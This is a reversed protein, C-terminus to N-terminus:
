EGPCTEINNPTTGLHKMCVYLATPWTWCLSYNETNKGKQDHGVYHIIRLTKVRHTMDLMIFLEWHKVKNTMDLMIFLETNKGQQDHGVYHIIRLTKVRNTM